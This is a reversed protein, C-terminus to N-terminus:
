LRWIATATKGMKGQRLDIAQPTWEPVSLSKTEPYQSKKYVELKKAYPGNAAERSNLKSELLLYNGLRDLNRERLDGPFHQEWSSDPHEPLVHEITAADTEWDADINFEQKQLAFLIYRVLRTKQGGIPIARKTFAERFEEDSVYLQQKLADEVDRGSRLEGKTVAIAIQNYVEELKNTNRQSIMNYRFSIVDLARLIRTLEGPNMHLFAAIVLPRYQVVGYLKLHRVSKTANPFDTWFGHTPDDLAEVLVSASDLEQLLSFVDSPTQVDARISKYVRDQRIYARRSNLCHRLFEPLRRAQVRNSIAQWMEERPTPPPVNVGEALERIRDDLPDRDDDHLVPM